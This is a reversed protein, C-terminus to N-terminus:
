PCDTCARSLSERLPSPGLLSDCYPPPAGSSKGPTASSLGGRCTRSLGGDEGRVSRLIRRGHRTEGVWHEGSSTGHRRKRKRKM